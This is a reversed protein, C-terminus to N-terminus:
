RIAIISSFSTEINHYGDERKNIVNLGLNIKAPSEAVIKDM